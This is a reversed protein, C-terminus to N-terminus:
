RFSQVWAPAMVFKPATKHVVVWSREEALLDVMGKPFGIKEGMVELNRFMTDAPFVVIYECGETIAKTEAANNTIHSTVIMNILMKRGVNIGTTILHRVAAKQAGPFSDWDDIVLLCGDEGFLKKMGFKDNGEGGASSGGTDDTGAMRKVFFDVPIQEIGLGKYSKDDEMTTECIGYVKRGPFLNKYLRVQEATFMTKGCGPPGSLYMVTRWDKLTGPLPTFEAKPPLALRRYEPASTSGKGAGAGAAAPTVQLAGGEASDSDSSSEDYPSYPTGATGAGTRRARARNLKAKLKALKAIRSLPEVPRVSERYERAARAAEPEERLTRELDASRDPKSAPQWDRTPMDPLERPDRRPKKM